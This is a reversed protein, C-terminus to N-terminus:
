EKLMIKRKVNRMDTYILVHMSECACVGNVVLTISRYIDRNTGNALFTIKILCIHIDKLISMKRHTKM